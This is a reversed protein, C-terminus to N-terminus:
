ASLRKERRRQVSSPINMAERYKAVTRRAIAIGEDHLIKVIQDDSLISRGESEILDRIRHRVSEGSLADGGDASQIATPFFYKLEFVGRSTAMYKNSTVRSVTSEHMDIADAVQKLNLPRLHAIGHTLFADQQRVIETSVKLITRARQDLSKVLWNAEQLRENLYTKEEGDRASDIIAAYYGRNVLVRPLTDTNLEISWSGDTRPTVFVDPVVPQVPAAAFQGGPRPDLARIEAVMEILDEDDVACLRRLAPFDRRALLDLNEILNQMAPDFRDREKLQLTLCEALSRAFVGTPEFSQLHLLVAEVSEAETNLRAAIDEVSAQLYGADDVAEILSAAILRDAAILPTMALQEALRDHLTPEAQAFDEVGFDGGEGLGGGREIMSSGAPGMAPARDAAGPLSEDLAEGLDADVAPAVDAMDAGTAETLDGPTDAGLLDRSTESGAGTESAPEVHGAPADGGNVLGADDDRDLLPNKELEAEVYAILDMNSLQLLKIAQMLQPTMVLSQSQRLEMRPGVGGSFGPGSM